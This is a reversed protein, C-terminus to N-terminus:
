RLDFGLDLLQNCVVDPLLGRVGSDRDHLRLHRGKLLCRKEDFATELGHGQEAGDDAARHQEAVVERDDEERM